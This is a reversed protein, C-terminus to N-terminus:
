RKGEGFEEVVALVDDVGEEGHVVAITEMAERWRSLATGDGPAQEDDAREVKAVGDLAGWERQATELAEERTLNLDTFTDVITSFRGYFGNPQKVFYAPM